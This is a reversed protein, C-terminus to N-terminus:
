HSGIASSLTNLATAFSSQFMSLGQILAVCICAVLLGYEVATVGTQDRLFRSMLARMEAGM